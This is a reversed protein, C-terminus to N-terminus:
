VYYEVVGNSDVTATTKDHELTVLGDEESVFRYGVLILRSVVRQQVSTM